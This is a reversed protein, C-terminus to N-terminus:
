THTVLTQYPVRETSTTRGYSLTGNPPVTTSFSMDDTQTRGINGVLLWLVVWAWRPTYPTYSFLVSRSCSSFFDGLCTVTMDLGHRPYTVVQSYGCASVAGGGM